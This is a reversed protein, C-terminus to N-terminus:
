LCVGSALLVQELLAHCNMAADDKAVRMKGHWFIAAKLCAARAHQENPQAPAEVFPALAITRTSPVMHFTRQLGHKM